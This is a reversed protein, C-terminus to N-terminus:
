CPQSCHLHIRELESLLERSFDAHALVSLGGLEKQQGWSKFMSQFKFFQSNRSPNETEMNLPYFMHNLFTHIGDMYVCTRVAHIYSDTAWNTARIRMSVFCVLYHTLNNYRILWFSGARPQTGCGRLYVRSLLFYVRGMCVGSPDGTLFGIGWFTTTEFLGEEWWILLPMLNVLPM